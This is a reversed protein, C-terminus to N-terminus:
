THTHTHTDGWATRLESVIRRATELDPTALTVSSALLWGPVYRVSGIPLLRRATASRGLFERAAPMTVEAPSDREFGGLVVFVEGTSSTSAASPRPLPQPTRSAHEKAEAAAKAALQTSQELKDLRAQLQIQFQAQEKRQAEMRDRFKEQEEHIVQVTQATRDDPVATLEATTLRDEMTKFRADSADALQEIRQDTTDARTHLVRLMAHTDNQAQASQNLLQQLMGM